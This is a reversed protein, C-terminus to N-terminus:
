DVTTYLTDKSKEDGKINCGPFKETLPCHGMGKLYDETIGDGILESLRWVRVCKAESRALLEGEINTGIHFIM